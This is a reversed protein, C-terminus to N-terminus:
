HLPTTNGLLQGHARRLAQWGTRPPWSWDRSAIPQCAPVEGLLQVGYYSHRIAKSPRLGNTSYPTLFLKPRLPLPTEIANKWQKSVQRLWWLDLFSLHVLIAGFLEQIGFTELAAKNSNTEEM